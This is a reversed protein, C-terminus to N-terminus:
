CLAEIVDAATRHSYKALRDYIELMLLTTDPTEDPTEDLRNTVAYVALEARNSLHLKGLIASVMNRVTGPTYSMQEAIERNTQGESILLLIQIERETLNDM